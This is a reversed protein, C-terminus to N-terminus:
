KGICIIGLMTNSLYLKNLKWCKKIQIGHRYLYSSIEVIWIFQTLFSVINKM